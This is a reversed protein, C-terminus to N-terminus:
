WDLIAWVEESFHIYPVCPADDDSKMGDDDDVKIYQTVM